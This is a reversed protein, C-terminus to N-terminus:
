NLLWKAMNRRQHVCIQFPEDRANLLKNNAVWNIAHYHLRHMELVTKKEKASEEDNLDNEILVWCLKIGTPSEKM